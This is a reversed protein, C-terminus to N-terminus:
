DVVLYVLNDGLYAADISDDGIKIDDVQENGIYIKKTTTPPTPDWVSVNNPYLALLADYMSSESDDFVYIIKWTIVTTGSTQPTIYNPVILDVQFNYSGYYSNYTPYENYTNESSESMLSEKIDSPTYIMSHGGDKFASNPNIASCLNSLSDNDLTVYAKYIRAGVTVHPKTNIYLTGYMMYTENYDFAVNSDGTVTPSSTGATFDLTVTYQFKLYKDAM